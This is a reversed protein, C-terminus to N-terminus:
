AQADRGRGRRATALAAFGVVNATAFVLTAVRGWSLVFENALLGFTGVALLIFGATEVHEKV